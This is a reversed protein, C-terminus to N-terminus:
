CTALRRPTKRKWMSRSWHRGKTLNVSLTVANLQDGLAAGASLEPPANQFFQKVAEGALPRMADVALVATVDADADAERLRDILPGKEGKASLMKKLTPEPAAAVTRDDAVYVAWPVSGIMEELAYYTKGEHTAEKAKPSLTQVLKKGDVPQAFRVVGGFSFLVNGGPTPDLFLEAEDAQRPDLGLAALPKFWEDMPLGALEDSALLQKPYVVVAGTFSDAIFTTNIKKRIPPIGGDKDSDKPDAPDIKGVDAVPVPKSPGIMRTLVFLGIVTGSGALLLVLAGVALM